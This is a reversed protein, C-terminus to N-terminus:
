LKVNYEAAVRFLEIRNGIGVKNYINTLHREVTKEAIALKEAIERGTSGSIALGVIQLERDTLKFTKRFQKMEKIPSAIIMFGATDHFRDKIVSVYTRAPFVESGAKFHVVATFSGTATRVADEIMGAFSKPDSVLDLFSRPSAKGADSRFFASVANNVDRIMLDGDLVFVLEDINAIIEEAPISNHLDLLRFRSILVYLGIIYLSFLIIGIHQYGSVGFFPLILTLLLSTLYTLPFFVLFLRSQKKEKNITTHRNWKLLVAFSLVFTCAVVLIYLRIWISGANLIGYWENDRRVFGSFVFFGICNSVLLGISPLYNIALLWPKIRLKATEALFHLNVPSFLFGGVYAIKLFLEIRETRRLSYAIGLFLTWVLMALCLAAFLLSSRSRRDDLATKLGLYTWLVSLLLFIVTYRSMPLRLIKSCADTALWGCAKM